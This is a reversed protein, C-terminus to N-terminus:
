ITSQKDNEDRETQDIETKSRLQCSKFDATQLIELLTHNWNLRGYLLFLSTSPHHVCWAALRAAVHMKFAADKLV